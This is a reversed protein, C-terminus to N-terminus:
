KERGGNGNDKDAYTDLDCASKNTDYRKNRLVIDVTDLFDKQAAHEIADLKGNRDFDFSLDLGFM